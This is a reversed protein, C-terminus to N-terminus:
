KMEVKFHNKTKVYNIYTNKGNFLIERISKTIKNTTELYNEIELINNYISNNVKYEKKLNDTSSKAIKSKLEQM